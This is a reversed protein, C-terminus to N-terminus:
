CQMHNSHKWVDDRVYALWSSSVQSGAHVIELRINNQTWLEMGCNFVPCLKLVHVFLIVWVSADVLGEEQQYLYCCACYKEPHVIQM